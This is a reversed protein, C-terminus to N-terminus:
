PCPACFIRRSFYIFQATHRDVVNFKIVADNCFLMSTHVNRVKEMGNICIVFVVNNQGHSQSYFFVVHLATTTCCVCVCLSQAFKGISRPMAADCMNFMQSSFFISKASHFNQVVVATTTTHHTYHSQTCM